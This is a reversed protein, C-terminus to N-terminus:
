SQLMLPAGEGNGQGYYGGQFPVEEIAASVSPEIIKSLIELKRQRPELNNCDALRSNLWSRLDEGVSDIQSYTKRMAAEFEEFLRVTPFDGPSHRQVRDHCQGLLRRATAVDCGRVLLEDERVPRWPPPGGEEQEERASVVELLDNYPIRGVRVPEHRPAPLLELMKPSARSMFTAYVTRVNYCVKWVWNSWIIGLQEILGQNSQGSSSRVHGFNEVAIALILNSLIFVVTVVFLFLWVAAAVPSISQMAAFDGRGSIVSLTSRNALVLTSWQKLETGFMVYGGIAFNEFVVALLIGLHALDGASAALARQIAAMRPQGAFGRFFRLLILLMYVIMGLKHYTRILVLVDLGEFLKAIGGEYETATVWAQSDPGLNGLQKNVELVRIAFVVFVGIIASALLLSALDLTTWSSSFCRSCCGHGSRDSVEHLVAFFMAGLLLFWLVDVIIHWVSPFIDAPIPVVKMKKDLLGGSEFSFDVQVRVYARVEPNFLAFHAEVVQTAEDIWSAAQLMRARQQGLPSPGKAPRTDLWAYFAQAGNALGKLSSGAIFAMDPAQSTNTVLPGFTATSSPLLRCGGRFYEALSGELLGCADFDARRQQLQLGGVVHNFTRVFGPRYRPGALTPVLGDSLWLWLESSDKLSDLTVSRAVNSGPDLFQVEINNVADSIGKRLRYMSAPSGHLWASVAFVLWLAVTLPITTCGQVRAREVLLFERLQQRSVVHQGADKSKHRLDVVPDLRGAKM